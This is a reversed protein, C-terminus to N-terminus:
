WSCTKEGLVSSVQDATIGTNETILNQWLRCAAPTVTDSLKIAQNTTDLAQQVQGQKALANILPIYEISHVPTFGATKAQDYLDIVQGWKKQQKALDAKEFYYCWNDTSIKGFAQPFSTQASGTGMIQEFNTLNGFNSFGAMKIDLQSYIPDLVLLCSSGSQYVALMDAAKGTFEPGRIIGKLDMGPDNLLDTVPYDRPTFLWYNLTHESEGNYLLNIGM